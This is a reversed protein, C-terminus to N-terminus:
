KPKFLSLNQKDFEQRFTFHSLAVKSGESCEKTYVRYLENINHWVPELYLKSTDKRCYHSEVKPLKHLFEQLFAREECKRYARKAVLGCSTKSPPAKLTAEHTKLWNQVTWEELALTRLFMTKCVRKRNDKKLYFM